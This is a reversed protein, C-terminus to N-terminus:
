TATPATATDTATVRGVAAPKTETRWPPVLSSGASPLTPKPAPRSAVEVTMARGPRPPSTETYLEDPPEISMRISTTPQICGPLFSASTAL